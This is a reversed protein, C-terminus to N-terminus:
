TSIWHARILRAHQLIRTSQFRYSPFIEIEDVDLIVCVKRVCPATAYHETEVPGQDRGAEKMHKQCDDRTELATGNLAALQRPYSM